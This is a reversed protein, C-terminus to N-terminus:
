VKLNRLKARFKEIKRKIKIDESDIEKPSHIQKYCKDCVWALNEVKNVLNIPLYPKTHHCARTDDYLLYKGCCRCKGKDRNFAYERNMYYEFNYKNEKYM